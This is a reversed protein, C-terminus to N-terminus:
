NGAEAEKAEKAREIAKIRLAQLDKFQKKHKAANWTVHFLNLYNQFTASDLGIAKRRDIVYDADIIPQLWYKKNKSDYMLQTGYLQYNKERLTVRDELLALQDPLANKSLVAEKLIPLYKEQTALGAHQITLFIARSGVVGIKKYGLWGYKDLIACVTILNISDLYMVENLHAKFYEPGGPVNTGYRYRQDTVFVSDLVPLLHRLSDAVKTRHIDLSSLVKLASDINKSNFKGEVPAEQAHCTLAAFLFIFLLPKHHFM